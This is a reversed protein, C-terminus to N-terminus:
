DQGPAGRLDDLLVLDNWTPSGVVRWQIHTATRQLEVSAGDEGNEGDTGNTGDQGNQGDTGDAGKLEALAVLDVWSADGVWRWQVHTISKQLEVNRGDVGDNGDIGDTGDTGPEGRPGPIGPVGEVKIVD